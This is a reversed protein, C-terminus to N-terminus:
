KRVNKLGIKRLIRYMSASSGTFGVKEDFAERIREIDPNERREHFEKVTKRLLYKDFDDLDTVPYPRYLNKQTM